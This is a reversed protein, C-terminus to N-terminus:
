VLGMVTVRWHRGSGLPWTTTHLAFQYGPVVVALSTLIAFVIAIQPPWGWAHTLIGLVAGRFFVAIASVILLHVHLRVDGGRGAAVAPTRVRLFYILIVAVGFSVLHADAIRMGGRIAFVFIILDALAAVLTRTM